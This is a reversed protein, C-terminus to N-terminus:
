HVWIGLEPFEIASHLSSFSTKDGQRSSTSNSNGTNPIITLQESFRDEDNGVYKILLSSLVIM